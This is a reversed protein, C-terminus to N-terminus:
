RQRKWGFGRKSKSTQEEKFGLLERYLKASDEYLRFCDPTFPAFFVRERRDGMLDSVESYDEPDVFSFIYIINEDRYLQLSLTTLAAVEEANGGCVVIRLDNEYFDAPLQELEACNGYDFVLYYYNQSYAFNKDKYFFIDQYVLRGRENEKKVDSFFLELSDLFASDNEQIYCAKKGLASLTKVLQVAQTTAGIRPMIGIVGIKKKIGKMPNDKKLVPIAQEIIVSREQSLYEKLKKRVGASLYDRIVNTFGNTYCLKLAEDTYDTHPAYIIVKSNYNEKLFKIFDDDPMNKKVFSLDPIIVDVDFVNLDKSFEFVVGMENCVDRIMRNSETLEGIYIVKM